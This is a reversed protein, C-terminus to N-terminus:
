IFVLLFSAVDIIQLFIKFYNTVTDNNKSYVQANCQCPTLLMYVIIFLSFIWKYEMEKLFYKM